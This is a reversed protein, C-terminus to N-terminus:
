KLLGAAELEDFANDGYAAIIAEVKERREKEAQTPLPTLTLVYERNWDIDLADFLAAPMVPSVKLCGRGQELSVRNVEIIPQRM